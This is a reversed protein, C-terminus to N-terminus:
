GQCTSVPESLLSQRGRYVLMAICVKFVRYNLTKPVLRPSFPEPEARLPSPQTSKFDGSPILVSCNPSRSSVQRGTIPYSSWSQEEAWGQVLRIWAHVEKTGNSPPDGVKPNGKVVCFPLVGGGWVTYDPSWNVARFLLPASSLGRGLGVQTRNQCVPSVRAGATGMKKLCLKSSFCVDIWTRKVGLFVLFDM